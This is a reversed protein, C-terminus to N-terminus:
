PSRSIVSILLATYFTLGLRDGAPQSAKKRVRFTHLHLWLDNVGCRLFDCGRQKIRVGYRFASGFERDPHSKSRTGSSVPRSKRSSAFAIPFQTHNVNSTLDEHRLLAPGLRNCRCAILLFADRHNRDLAKIIKMGLLQLHFQVPRAHTKVPFNALRRNVTRTQRERSEVSIERLLAHLDQARGLM